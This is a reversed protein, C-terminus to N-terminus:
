YINKKLLSILQSHYDRITQKDKEELRNTINEIESTRLLYKREEEKKVDRTPTQGLYLLNIVFGEDDKIDKPRGYIISFGIRMIEEGSLLNSNMCIDRKRPIYNCSVTQVNQFYIAKPKVNYIESLFDAETEGRREELIKEKDKELFIEGQVSLELFPIEKLLNIMSVTQKPNLNEQLGM